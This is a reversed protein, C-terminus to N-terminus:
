GRQGHPPSTWVPSVESVVLRAEAKFWAHYNESPGKRMWPARPHAMFLVPLKANSMGLTFPLTRAAFAGGRM